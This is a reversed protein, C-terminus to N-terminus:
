SNLVADITELMQREGFGDVMAASNPCTAACAGCGQCMAPNVMVRDGDPNLIRAAFPCAEICRECLSCLSHRVRAVVRDAAIAPRTLIHLARQAAARATTITETVSRPSHAIGCAFVGQALADVPRWKVDAPQFFGDATVEAGYAAALETPLHPRIGTALVVLDARIEITTTLIPERAVIRLSNGDSIKVAPPQQREYPIFIVGAERAKTFYTESFGCTMMDRYFVYIATDPNEKKIQLAHKVATPCCVRSCYNRPEFRSDVCLIMAVTGLAAPDIRADALGIELAKQTVIAPHSGQDYSQAVAESGGTALVVVGHEITRPPEDKAELSTYFHGVQGCASNIATSLHLEIHPHKEVRAVTQDLLQKLDHGEITKHLWQLNGGLLAEKEVLAVPYGHDAISLAAQMGAIGGGVVLAKQVVALQAAPRPDVHKLRALASSLDTLLPRSDPSRGSQGEHIKLDVAEMLRPALGMAKALANLQPVFAYPHCASILVRNTPSELATETLRRWGEANCLRDLFAMRAVSPDRLLETQISDTNVLQNLRDDCTCVAVLVQPPEASVDRVAADPETEVSLSGGATHLMRSAETAAASAQLVSDAIDALGACSGAAVIGPNDTVTSSFPVTQIFGWPNLTLGAMEALSETGASPRQGTALVVLDFREETVSGNLDAHRLMLDGGAITPIVSHVRGREFRVRYDNRAQDCFRQFPLGTARMDMYFIASDIRTGGKEKALMAQKVAIMCCATSCFDAELQIDRSGVCQLFAIKEIPKQDAPRVLRGRTPGAGSLLREFELQTVVHPSTGYVFPNKGQGPDFYDVGVALVIAGVELEEDRGAVMEAYIRNVMPIMKLPDFPKMLYDLAGIKMAEVATEVTAYATMMVVTLDPHRAKAQELLEVGDMGPMKIDTLMLHFAKAELKELAQEGSEAIAVSFGEDKLWEKLSDRVVLEDDVVLIRFQRRQEQSLDIARTPCVKECEGCRNCAAGDIIYPDSAAHPVPRYIAKRMSLGANFRDAVEVPCVDACLGCGVCRQGDVWTPTRRLRVSMHGPEGTVSTLRTATQIRINEHFLGKRLCFQSGSDREVLPLMKCMGCRNTPFQRDLQSLIGGLHPARDILTVGYGNVALDLASRIGGIGAGVVLANGIKKQM